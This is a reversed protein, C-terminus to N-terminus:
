TYFITSYTYLPTTGLCLSLFMLAKEYNFKNKILKYSLFISLDIIFINVICSMNYYNTVHFIKYIIAFFLSIGINNRFQYLYYEDFEKGQSINKAIGFVTDFDWSSNVKLNYICIIQLIIIALFLIIHTRNKFFSNIKLLIKYLLIFIIINFFIFFINLQSVFWTNNNLLINIYIWLFIILFTVNFINMLNKKLFLFNIKQFM